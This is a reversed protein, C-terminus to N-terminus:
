ASEEEADISPQAARTARVEGWVVLLTWVHTVVWFIAALWLLLLDMGRDSWVDTWSSASRPPACHGPSAWALTAVSFAHLLKKPPHLTAPNMPVCRANQIPLLTSASDSKLEGHEFVNAWVISATEPLGAAEEFSLGRPIRLAHRPDCLAYEAYGGGPVLACVKDGVRWRGAARVVELGLTKSAGPPAQYVGTRQMIDPRTVDAAKVRILQGDAPVVTPTLDVRLASAPGSGGNVTVASMSLSPMFGTPRTLMKLDLSNM